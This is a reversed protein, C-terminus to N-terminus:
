AMIRRIRDAGGTGARTGCSYTQVAGSVWDTNRGATPCFQNSMTVTVNPPSAGDSTWTM